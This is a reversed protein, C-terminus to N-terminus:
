SRRVTMAARPVIRGDIARGSRAPIGTNRLAERGGHFAVILLVVMLINPTKTSLSNNGFAIIFFAATGIYVYRGAGSLLVVFTRALFLLLIVTGFLGFQFVFMVLSSEIFELDFHFRALRRIDGIDAGFLIENWSVLDFLRYINVRALASEDILGNQFRGFLGLSFLIVLAMPVILAVGLLSIAKMRLRTQPSAAPWDHFVIAALAGAAAVISAVRAGSAFAGLLMITIILAKAIGRWRSAAVFSIGVASFLGLVLPHETLGTPRFSLEEFPYPLFRVHLVFEVLALCASAAIFVLLSSGLWERWAQPFFLMLAASACAALYSDVLYGISGSHGMLVAFISIATMVVVFTMLARLARVEWDGLEIRTSLLTAILVAFIGYTSPHIKALIFGGDASYNVVKDLLNASLTFRLLVLVWFVAFWLRLVARSRDAWEFAPYASTSRM